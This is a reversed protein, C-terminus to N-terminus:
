DVNKFCHISQDLAILAEQYHQNMILADAQRNSLIALTLYIMKNDLNRSSAYMLDALIPDLDSNKFIFVGTQIPKEISQDMGIILVGASKVKHVEGSDVDLADFAEDAGKINGKLPYLFGKPYLPTLVISEGENVQIGTDKWETVMIEHYAKLAKIQQDSAFNSALKPTCSLALVAYFILPFTTKRM